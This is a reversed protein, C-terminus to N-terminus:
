LFVFFLGFYVSSLTYSTTPPCNETKLLTKRHGSQDAVPAAAAVEGGSVHVAQLAVHFSVGLLM